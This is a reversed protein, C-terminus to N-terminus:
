IVLVMDHRAEGTESPLQDVLNEERAGRDSLFASLAKSDEGNETYSCLIVSPDTQDLIECLANMLLTGGGSRRYAPSVSLSLLRCVGEEEMAGVLAGAAAGDESVIGLTLSRDPNGALPLAEPRILDSFDGTDGEIYGIEFRHKM